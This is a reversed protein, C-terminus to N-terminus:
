APTLGDAQPWSLTAWWHLAGPQEQRRQRKGVTYKHHLNGREPVSSSGVPQECGVGAIGSTVIVHRNKMFM